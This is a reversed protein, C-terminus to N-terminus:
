SDTLGRKAHANANQKGESHSDFTSSAVCSSIAPEAHTVFRQKESNLKRWELPFEAHGFKEFTFIKRECVPGHGHIFDELQGFCFSGM